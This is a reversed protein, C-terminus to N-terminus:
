SNCRPAVLVATDDSPAYALRADLNKRAPVATRQLAIYAVAPRSDLIFLLAFVFAYIVAAGVDTSTGLVYPGGFGEGVAWVFFAYMAGLIYVARRALGLILALGLATETVASMDPLLQGTHAAISAWLQFWPKIIGPQGNVMGQITAAFGDRFGPQWKFFADILWVLGFMVRLVTAPNRNLKTM